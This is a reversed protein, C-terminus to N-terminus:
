FWVHKPFFLLFSLPSDREPQLSSCSKRKSWSQPWLGTCIMPAWRLIFGRVPHSLKDLMGLNERFWYIKWKDSWQKGRVCMKEGKGVLSMLKLECSCPERSFLELTSKSVQALREWTLVFTAEIKWKNGEDSTQFHPSFIWRSQKLLLCVPNSWPIGHPSHIKRRPCYSKNTSAPVSVASFESLLACYLVRHSIWSTLLKITTGAIPPGAKNEASFWLCNKSSVTMCLSWSFFFPSQVGQIEQDKLVSVKLRCSLAWRTLAVWNRLKEGWCESSKVATQLESM